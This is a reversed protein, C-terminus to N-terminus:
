FFVRSGIRHETLRESKVWSSLTPKSISPQFMKCTESPSLFREGIAEQQRNGLEEKVVTRFQDVLEDLTIPSLLIKDM